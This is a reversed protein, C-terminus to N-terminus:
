IALVNPHAISSMAAAERKLRAIATRDTRDIRLVKIACVHDDEVRRARYVVGAAGAGIVDELAYTM